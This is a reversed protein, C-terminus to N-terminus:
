DVRFRIEFPIDLGYAEVRLKFVKGVIGGPPMPFYILDEMFGKNQIYVEDIIRAAGQTQPFFNSEARRFYSFSTLMKDGLLGTQSKFKHDAALKDYYIQLEVIDPMYYIDDNEDVLILSDRDLTLSHLNKNAIKVGLPFYNEGKRRKTLEIDVMVALNENEKIFAYAGFKREEGSPGKLRYASCGVITTLIFLFLVGYLIRKM